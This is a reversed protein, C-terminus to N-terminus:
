RELLIGLVTASVDTALYEPPPEWTPPRDLMLRLCRGIAAPEVGALVNSGCDITEPREASDRVTVAPVRL